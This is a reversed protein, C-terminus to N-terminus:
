KSRKVIMNQVITFSSNTIWYFIIATSMTFSMFVIMVMMINMMMKMQKEQGGMGAGSNMKFSFYTALGVLIPLLLYIPHGSTIAKIPSTSMMLGLFTDEFLVPLRSLSEYFAFFLPIQIFGFLCGLAPNINFKKYILMTEQSKQMMSQQDNKNKYKAEIKDIEPKAQKLLESQKATRLTVPYMVLRILLTTLIIALGFNNVLYGIKLIVWSLPKVFVTNWIGEYGGSSIKFEDCAVLEEVSLVSEVKSKYSKKSIDGNELDEAYKKLLNDRTDNYLNIISKDKPACLINSALVQGTDSDKVVSGDAGKLQRTCGTLSIVAILLFIIIKKNQKM